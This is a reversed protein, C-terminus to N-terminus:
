LLKGRALYAILANDSVSGRRRCLNEIASFILVPLAPCLILRRKSIPENEILGVIYLAGRKSYTKLTRSLRELFSCGKIVRTGFIDAHIHVLFANGNRHHITSSLDHHFADDFRLGAHNQRKDIPQASVQLDRKFFSGRGGPQVVQQFWM